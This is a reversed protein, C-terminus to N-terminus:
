SRGRGHKDRSGACGRGLTENENFAGSKAQDAIERDDEDAEMNAVIRGLEALLSELEASKLAAPEARMEVAVDRHQSCLWQGRIKLLDFDARFGSGVPPFPMAHCTACFINAGMQKAM